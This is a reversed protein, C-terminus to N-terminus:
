QCAAVRTAVDILIPPIKTNRHLALKVETSLERIDLERIIIMVIVIIIIINGGTQIDCLLM